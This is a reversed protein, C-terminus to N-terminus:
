QQSPAGAPEAPKSKARGRGKPIPKFEELAARDNKFVNAAYSRIGSVIQQLDRAAKDRRETANNRLKKANEQAADAAVLSAYLAPVGAIEEETMGNAILMDHHEVVVDSYYDLMSTMAKVSHPVDTGIRFVKLNVNGGSEKSASKAAKRIGMILDQAKGMLSNQEKTKIDLFNQSNIQGTNLQTLNAIAAALDDRKKQGSGRTKILEIHNDMAKGVSNADETVYDVTVPM